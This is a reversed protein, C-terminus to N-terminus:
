RLCATCTIWGDGKPRAPPRREPVEGNYAKKMVRGRLKTGNRPFRCLSFKVFKALDHSDRVKFRMSNGAIHYNM